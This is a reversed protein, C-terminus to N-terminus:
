LMILTALPLCFAIDDPPLVYRYMEGGWNSREFKISQVFSSVSDIYDEAM